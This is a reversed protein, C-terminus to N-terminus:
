LFIFYHWKVKKLSLRLFSCYMQPYPSCKAYTNLLISFFSGKYLLFLLVYYFYGTINLTFWLQTGLHISFPIRESINKRALTNLWGLQVYLSHKTINTCHHLIKACAFLNFNYTLFWNASHQSLKSFILILLIWISLILCLLFKLHGTLM